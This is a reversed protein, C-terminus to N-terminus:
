HRGGKLLFFRNNREFSISFLLFARQVINETQASFFLGRIVSIKESNKAAVSQPLFERVNVQKLVTAFTYM